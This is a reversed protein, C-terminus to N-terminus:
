KQISKLFENHEKDKIENIIAELENLPMLVRILDKRLTWLQGSDFFAKVGDFIEGQTTLYCYNRVVYISCDLIKSAEIANKAWFVKTIQQGRYTTLFCYKKM